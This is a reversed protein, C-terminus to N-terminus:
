PWPAPLPDSFPRGTSRHMYALTWKGDVKKLFHSMTFVDENATGKYDFSAKVVCVAYAADGVVDVIKVEILESVANTIDSGMMATMIEENAPNGSPRILWTGPAAFVNKIFDEKKQFTNM